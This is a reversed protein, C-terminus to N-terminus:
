APSALPIWRAKWDKKVVAWSLDPQFVGQPALRIRMVDSALVTVHIIAKGAQISIQNDKSSFSDVNGASQWQAFASVHISLFFLSVLRKM